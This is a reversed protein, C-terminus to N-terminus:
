DTEKHDGAHQNKWHLAGLRLQQEAAAQALRMILTVVGPDDALDARVHQAVCRIPFGTGPGIRLGSMVTVYRDDAAIPHLVHGTAIGLNITYEAGVSYTVHKGDALNTVSAPLDGRALGTSRIGESPKVFALVSARGSGYLPDLLHPPLQGVSSTRVTAMASVAKDVFYHVDQGVLPACARLGRSSASLIAM